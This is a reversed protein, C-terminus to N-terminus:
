SSRGPINDACEAFHPCGDCDVFGDCIDERELAVKFWGGTAIKSPLIDQLALIIERATDVQEIPGDAYHEWCAIAAHACERLIEDRTKDKM